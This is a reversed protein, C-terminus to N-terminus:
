QRYFEKFNIRKKETYFKDYAEHNLNILKEIVGTNRLEKFMLNEFAFEGDRKLGESRAKRIKERIQQSRKFILDIEKKDTQTKLDKEMRNVTDRIIDAKASIEKPHVKEKDPPNYKPKKIWEENLLSYVGTSFHPENIDEFYLEIEHGHIFIDHHLNWIFRKGNLAEKVVDTDESIESFDTIVHVDLDSMDTYNYNALSGTLCVDKIPIEVDSNDVIQHVITLIKDRIKTDFKDKNWFKSNLEKHYRM